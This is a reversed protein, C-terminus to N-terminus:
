VCGGLLASVLFFFFFPVFFALLAHHHHTHTRGIHTRQGFEMGRELLGSFFFCGGGGGKGFCIWLIVWRAM